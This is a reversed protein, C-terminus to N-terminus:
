VLWEWLFGTAWVLNLDLTEYPVQSPLGDIQAYYLSLKQDYSIPGIQPHYTKQDLVVKLSNAQSLLRIQDPRIWIQQKPWNIVVRVLTTKEVPLFLSLVASTLALTSLLCLVPTFFKGALLSRKM